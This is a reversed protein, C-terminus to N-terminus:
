ESWIEGHGKRMIAVKGAREVERAWNDADLGGGYGVGGTQRIKSPNHPGSEATYWGPKVAPSTETEDAAEKYVAVARGDYDYAFGSDLRVPTGDIVCDPSFNDSYIIM